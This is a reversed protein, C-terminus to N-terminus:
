IVKSKLLMALQESKRCLNHVLMRACEGCSAAPYAEIEGPDFDGDFDLDVDIGIQIVQQSEIL